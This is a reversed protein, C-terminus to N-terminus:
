FIAVIIGRRTLTQKACFYSHPWRFDSRANEICIPRNNQNSQKQQSAILVCTGLDSRASLGTENNRDFLCRDSESTIGHCLGAILFVLLRSRSIATIMQLEARNQDISNNSRHAIRIQHGINLQIKRDGIFLQRKHIPWPIRIALPDSIRESQSDGWMLGLRDSNKQM